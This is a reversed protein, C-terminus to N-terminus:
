SITHKAYEELKTGALVFGRSLFFREKLSDLSKGESEGQTSKEEVLKGCKKDV